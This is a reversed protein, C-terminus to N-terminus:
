RWSEKVVKAKSCPGNAFATSDGTNSIDEIIKFLRQTAIEVNWLNSISQYAAKQINKKEEKNDLLKKVYEYLGDIDGNKYIYGNVGEEIMFRTSGAAHNACVACGSNMAENLVAGWGEKFDSTFLFVESKEMQQRVQEPTMRGLVKVNESLGCQKIDNVVADEMDGSGIINLTFDYGDNKLRKAIEVADDPHKWDILRGTWLISNNEKRSILENVDYKKNEPFYGWKYFKNEPFGLLKMDLPLYASACLIHINKDKYQIIRNKVGKRTQPIFRRWLGKKFFREAYFFSLKNIDMRIKILSNPCAGFIVVDADVVLKEAQKKEAENFWHIVYEKETTTQYGANTINETAVFYFDHGKDIINECFKIQHHNLFNSVFVVKM